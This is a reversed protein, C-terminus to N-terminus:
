FSSLLFLGGVLVGWFFTAFWFARKAEDMSLVDLDKNEDSLYGLAFFVLRFGDRYFGTAHNLRVVAREVAELDRTIAAGIISGIYGIVRQVLLPIWVYLGISAWLLIIPLTICAKIIKVGPGDLPSQSM